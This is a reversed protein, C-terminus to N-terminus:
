SSDIPAAGQLGDAGGSKFAVDRQCGDVQGRLNGTYAVLSEQAAGIEATQCERWRGIRKSSIDKYVADVQGGDGDVAVDLINVVPVRWKVVSAGGGAAKGDGESAAHGANRCVQEIGAGAFDVVLVGM